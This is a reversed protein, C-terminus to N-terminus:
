PTTPVPPTNPDIAQGTILRASRNRTVYGWFWQFMVLFRNQFEILYSIHIFLWTLWALWGSFAFFYLDVVAANRGITAMSGKDWYRFPEPNHAHGQVRNLILRAVYRGQQMAVPAVGPLPKGDPYRALALDGIAFIHPHQGVTLDANVTIRGGRDVAAGTALALLEALPSARVGAAWIVSETAIKQIGSANEIVAHDCAIQKVHASLVLEVGLARLSRGARASLKEPFTQLVRDHGEVLLIRASAPNITRFEHRLTHHALESIAGALEVGTPGGGVIVFTLLRQREELSTSREAKEFALLIKRRIETADEITKLGPAHAEWEPHAFYHNQAGAAVILSDFRVREDGLLVENKELDFGTVEGLVVRCNKQRRVISRLPSAINAPSLGGTAIQYLLPQFVHFNRRDILTIEASSSRLNQAAYLGGFGGGIIVVQHGTKSM